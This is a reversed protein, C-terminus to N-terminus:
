YGLSCLHQVVRNQCMSWQRHFTAAANIHVTDFTPLGLMVFINTTSDRRKFGFFLKISRNYCSRLKDLTGVNYCKWLSADYFCLVYSKFLVLKVNVSCSCFKRLLM